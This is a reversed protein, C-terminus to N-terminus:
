RRRQLETVTTHLWAEFRRARALAADGFQDDFVDALRRGMRAPTLMDLLDRTEDLKALYGSISRAVDDATPGSRLSHQDPPETDLNSLGRRITGVTTPSVGVLAAVRRDSANPHETLLRTIAKRREAQTLPLSTRASTALGRVFCVEVAPRGGADLIVVPIGNDFDLGAEALRLLAESRHWGDSLVLTGENDRVVELPPLADLGVDCYLDYFEDVRSEDLGDRPWGAEDRVIDDLPVCLPKTASEPPTTM